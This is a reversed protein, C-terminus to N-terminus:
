QLKFIIQNNSWWSPTFTLQTPINNIPIEFTVLGRTKQTPQLTGSSFNPEAGISQWEYSYNQNDQLKYDLVSYNIPKNSTNEVEIDVALYKNGEKPNMFGSPSTYPTVSYVTVKNGNIVAPQNLSYITPQTPTTPTSAPTTAKNSSRDMIAIFAIFIIVIVVVTIIIRTCSFNQKLKNQQNLNQTPTLPPKEEVKKEEVNMLELAKEDSIEKKFGKKYNEKFKNIEEKSPM